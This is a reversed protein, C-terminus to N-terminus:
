VAGRGFQWALFSEVFLLALATWLLSGNWGARSVGTSGDPDSAYKMNDVSQLEPPLQAREAQRLDSEQTDVNIAFWQSENNPLGRLTYIGSLDTDTYTWEIGTPSSQISVPAARGDPREIKLTAPSINAANPQAPAPVGRSALPTGVLQQWQQREGSTAYALLERVIPLFSPWTPWNTWPEGTATDVSSLSGDTAIMVTRGRGLPATVIFPDGSPMAAAVQVDSRNNTIDLKFYQTVPTTLLGARERGRFPAVISHRYDLPDLGFQPQSTLEGIKAPLPSDKRTALVNYSDRVVRDGLFFVLGGGASAYRALREAEGVTFQAVNCVFICDFDSLEIDAVDGESVILPRIPADGSPNPNLADSVYKAAGPRGAICLVRVEERVPVVLWRSNDIKLRDDAARVEVAHEGPSQFRHTFRVTAEAVKPIDVTQESVPVGDVLLEVACQPRPEEGFQRLTVDFAVERGTTVFADSVTLSTVALNAFQPRGLDIVAVSAQKALSAIRDASRSKDGAAADANFRWTTQQLDTFFFVEHRDSTKRDSSKSAISEEVLRLAGDLDAGTHPQTLAEIQAVVAAHDIVQRGLIKKAPAAMLILTFTDASGSDRVLSAAAQKARAFRSAGDDRYDMSYSGAIVLIKHTPAGSLGALLRDGYPEAVALVVLAIVLTRVALLLWQQLRMRRANKRMAALLFQMAAWPAERFRHRSWLHILLPAAAAALWGLMALNAFGFALIIHLLM